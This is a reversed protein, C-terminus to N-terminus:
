GRYYAKTDPHLDPDGYQKELDNLMDIASTFPSLSTQQWVIRKLADGSLCSQVWVMKHEENPFIYPYTTLKAKMLYVWTYVEKRDEKRTGRFHPPDAVIISKHDISQSSTGTSTNASNDRDVSKGPRNDPGPGSSSLSTGGNGRESNVSSGEVPQYILNHAKELEELLVNNSVELEEVKRRTDDREKQYRTAAATAAEIRDQCIKVHRRLQAVEKSLMSPRGDKHSALDTLGPPISRAEGLRPMTPKDKRSMPQPRTTLGGQTGTQRFRYEEGEDDPPDCANSINDHVGDEDEVEETTLIPRHPNFPPNQQDPSEDVM